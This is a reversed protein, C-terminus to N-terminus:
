WVWRLGAQENRNSKMRLELGTSPSHYFGAGDDVQFCSGFEVEVQASQIFQGKCLVCTHPM